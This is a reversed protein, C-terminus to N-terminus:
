ERATDGGTSIILATSRCGPQLRFASSSGKTNLVDAGRSLSSCKFPALAALSACPEASCSTPVPAKKTVELSVGDWVKWFSCLEEPCLNPHVETSTCVARM